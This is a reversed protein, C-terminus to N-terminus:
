GWEPISPVQIREVEPLDFGFSDVLLARLAGRDALRTARPEDGRWVTVDRNMVTVRGDSTIARMMLRNKFSSAPHTATYHNAVEFDVPVERELTSVWADVIKTGQKARLIWDGGDRVMWYREDRAEGDRPEAGDDLLVPDCPALGGFGPDVVFTRDSLPVTLFMHTRPSATRPAVLLVRAAHGAPHFGLQQLVAAFLTAHEFCYGGRRDRVLKKQLSALDLRVSNGLLPDLNEFPIRTMHARLLGALTEFTPSTGGDWRIRELYADLDLATTM